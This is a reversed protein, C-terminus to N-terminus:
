VIRKTPLTLHTYSVSSISEGNNIFDLGHHMTQAPKSNVKHFTDLYEFSTKYFDTGKWYPFSYDMGNLGSNVGFHSEEIFIFENNNM